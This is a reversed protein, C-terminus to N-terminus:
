RRRGGLLTILSKALKALAGLDVDDVAAAIMMAISIATSIIVARGLPADIAARACGGRGTEIAAEVAAVAAGIVIIVRRQFRPVVATVNGRTGWAIISVVGVIGVNGV